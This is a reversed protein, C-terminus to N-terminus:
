GTRGGADIPACPPEPAVAVPRTRKDRNNSNARRGAVHDDGWWKRGHRHAGPAPKELDVDRARQFHM